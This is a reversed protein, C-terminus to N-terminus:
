EKLNASALQLCELRAEPLAEARTVGPPPLVQGVQPNRAPGAPPLVVRRRQDLLPPIPCSTELIVRRTFGYSGVRACAQRRALPDPLDLFNLQLTQDQSLRFAPPTTLVHLDCPCTAIRTLPARTLLTDSIYGLSQSLRGFPRTIGSSIVSGCPNTRM